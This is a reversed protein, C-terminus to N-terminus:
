LADVITNMDIDEKSLYDIVQKSYELHQKFADPEKTSNESDQLQSLLETEDMESIISYEINQSIEKVSLNEHSAHNLFYIGFSFFIALSSLAIVAVRPRIWIFSSMSVKADDIQGIKDAM